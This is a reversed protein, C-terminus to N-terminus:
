VRASKLVRALKKRLWVLLIRSFVANACLFGFVVYRVIQPILNGHHFLLSFLDVALFVAGLYILIGFITNARRAIMELSELRGMEGDQNGSSGGLWRDIRSVLGMKVGACVLGLAAIVKGIEGPMENIFSAWEESYRERKSKPLSRVAVGVFMRILRPTWAKLEEALVRSLTAVIISGVAMTIVSAAM